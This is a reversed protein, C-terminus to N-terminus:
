SNLIHRTSRPDTAQPQGFMKLPKPIVKANWVKMPSNHLRFELPFARLPLVLPLNVSTRMALQAFATKNSFVLWCFMNEFARDRWNQNTSPGLQKYSIRKYATISPVSSSPSTGFHHVVWPPQHLFPVSSVDLRTFTAKDNCLHPGM